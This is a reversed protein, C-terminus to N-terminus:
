VSETQQPHKGMRLWLRRLRVMRPRNMERRQHLTYMARAKLVNM